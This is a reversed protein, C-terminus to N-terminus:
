DSRPDVSKFLEYHGLSEERFFSLVLIGVLNGLFLNVTVYKFVFGLFEQRLELSMQSVTSSLGMLPDRGDPRLNM